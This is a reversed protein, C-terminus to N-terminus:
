MKKSNFEKNTKIRHPPAKYWNDRNKDVSLLTYISEPSEKIFDNISMEKNDKILTNKVVRENHMRPNLRDYISATFLRQFAEAHQKYNMFDERSFLQYSYVLFDLVINRYGKYASPKEIGFGDNKDINPFYFRGVEIQTSLENLLGIKKEILCNNDCISRLSILLGVTKSHWEMIDNYYQYTLEYKTKNSIFGYCLAALAILISLLSIWDSIQM